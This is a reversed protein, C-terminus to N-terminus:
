RRWTLLSINDDEAANISIKGAFDNQIHKSGSQVHLYSAVTHTKEQKVKAVVSLRPGYDAIKKSPRM